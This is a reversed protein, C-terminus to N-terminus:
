SVAGSRGLSAIDDNPGCPRIDIDFTLVCGTLWSLVAPSVFHNAQAVPVFKIPRLQKGETNWEDTLAELGWTEWQVCWLSALGHIIRVKVEVDAAKRPDEGENEEGGHNFLLARKTQRLLLERSLSWMASESRMGPAADICNLLDRPALTDLTCKRFPYAPARVELREIRREAKEATNRDHANRDPPSESSEPSGSRSRSYAPHTYYSSVWTGFALGRM